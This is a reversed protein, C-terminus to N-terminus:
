EHWWALTEEVWPSKINDEFMSVINDYFDDLCFLNDQTNWRKMGSLAVYAKQPDPIYFYIIFVFKVQRFARTLLKGVQSLRSKSSVHRARQEM